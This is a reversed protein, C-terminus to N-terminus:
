LITEFSRSKTVLFFFFRCYRGDRSFFTISKLFTTLARCTQKSCIVRLFPVSDGSITTEETAGETEERMVSNDQPCLCTAWVLLIMNEGGSVLGSGWSTSLSTETTSTGSHYSWPNGPSFDGWVAQM